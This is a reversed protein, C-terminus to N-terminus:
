RALDRSHAPCYFHTAGVFFRASQAATYGSVRALDAVFDGADTGSDLATCTNRAAQAIKVPGSAVPVGGKQLYTVLAARRAAPSLSQVPPLALPVPTARPQALKGPKAGRVPPPTAVPAATAPPAAPTREVVRGALPSDAASATVVDRPDVGRVTQGPGMLAFMGAATVSVAAAAGLVKAAGRLRAALAGPRRDGLEERDDDRIRPRNRIMTGDTM